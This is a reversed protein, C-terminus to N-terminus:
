RKRRPGHAAVLGVHVQEAGPVSPRRCALAGLRGSVPTHFITAAKLLALSLHPDGDAVCLLKVQLNWGRGRGQQLSAMILGAIKGQVMAGLLCDEAHM